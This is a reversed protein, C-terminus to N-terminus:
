ETRKVTRVRMPLKDFNNAIIKAVVGSVENKESLKLLLEDRVHEPLNDFNNELAEAVGWAAEDNESLKFLLNRVNDPLKDYNRAVTEAVYGATWNMESFKFQLAWRFTWAAEDNESLEKFLLNRLDCPIENFNGWIARVVDM